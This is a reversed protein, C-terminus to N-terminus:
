PRGLVVGDGVAEEVRGLVSRGAWVWAGAGEGSRGRVRVGALASVGVRV